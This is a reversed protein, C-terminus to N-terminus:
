KLSTNLHKLFYRSQLMMKPFVLIPLYQREMAQLITNKYFIDSFTSRPHDAMALWCGNKRCRTNITDITNEGVLHIYRININEFDELKKIFVLELQSEESSTVSPHHVHAVEISFGLLASLRALYSFANFDESHFDTTFVVTKIKMRRSLTPVVLVPCTSNHIVSRVVNGFVLHEFGNGKGAGMIILEVDERPIIHAVKSGIDGETIVSRVNPYYRADPIKSIELRIRKVQALLEVQAEDYLGSSAVTSPGGDSFPVFPIADYNNM